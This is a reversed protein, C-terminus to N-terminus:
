GFDTIKVNFDDSGREMLLINQPKLDRHIVKREHCYAVASFLEYMVKAAQAEDLNKRKALESYLEGGQCLEM